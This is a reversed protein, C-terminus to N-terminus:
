REVDRRRRTGRAEGAEQGLSGVGGWVGDRETEGNGGSLAERRKVAAPM